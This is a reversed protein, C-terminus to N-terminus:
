ARGKEQGSGVRGTELGHLGSAYAASRFAVMDLGNTSLIYLHSYLIGQVGSTRLVVQDHLICQENLYPGSAFQVLSYDYFFM